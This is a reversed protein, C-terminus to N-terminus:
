KADIVILEVQEHVYKPTLIEFFHNIQFTILCM